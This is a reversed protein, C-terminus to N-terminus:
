LVNISTYFHLSSSAPILDTDHSVGPKLTVDWAKNRNQMDSTLERDSAMELKIIVSCPQMLLEAWALVCKRYWPM